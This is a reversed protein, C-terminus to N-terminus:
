GRETGDRDVPNIVHGGNARVADEAEAVVISSSVIRHYM